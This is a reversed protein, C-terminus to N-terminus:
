QQMSIHQFNQFKNVRPGNIIAAQLRIRSLGVDPASLSLKQHSGKGRLRSEIKRSSAQRM